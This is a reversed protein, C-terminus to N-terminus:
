LLLLALSAGGALGMMPYVRARALAHKEAAKREKKLREACHRILQVQENLGSHGLVGGLEKLLMAATSTLRGSDTLTDVARSFAMYFPVGKCLEKATDKVLSYTSVSLDTALTQWLVALPQASYALRDCLM